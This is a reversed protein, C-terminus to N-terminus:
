GPVRETPQSFPMIPQRAKALLLEKIDGKAAPTASSRHGNRGIVSLLDIKANLSLERKVM